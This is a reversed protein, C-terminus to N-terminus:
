KLDAYFFVSASIHEVAGLQFSNVEARGTGGMAGGLNQSWSFRATLNKLFGLALGPWCAGGDSRSINGWEDLRPLNRLFTFQLFLGLSNKNTASNYCYATIKRFIFLQFCVWYSGIKVRGPRGTPTLLREGCM